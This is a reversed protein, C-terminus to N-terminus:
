VHMGISPLVSSHFLGTLQVSCFSFEVRASGFLSTEPCSDSNLISWSDPEWM